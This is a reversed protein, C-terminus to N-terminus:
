HQFFLGKLLMIARQAKLSDNISYIKSYNCGINSLVATM